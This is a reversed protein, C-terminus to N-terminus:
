CCRLPTLYGGIVLELAADSADLDAQISPIAVNAITADAQAMFPGLLLVALVWGERVARRAPIPPDPSTM